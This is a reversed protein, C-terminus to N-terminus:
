PLFGPRPLFPCIFVRIKKQQLWVETSCGNLDIGGAQSPSEWKLAFQGGKEERGRGEAKGAGGAEKEGGWQGWEWGAKGGGGRRAATPPGTASVPLDM